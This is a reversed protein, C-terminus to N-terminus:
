ESALAALDVFLLTEIKGHVHTAPVSGDRAIIKEVADRKESGSVIFWVSESENIKAL